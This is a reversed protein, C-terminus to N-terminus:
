FIDFLMECWEEFELVDYYEFYESIFVVFNIFLLFVGKLYVMVDNRIVDWFKRFDEVFKLDGGVVKDVYFLWLVFLFLCMDILMDWIIMKFNIVEEDM